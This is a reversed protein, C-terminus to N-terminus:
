SDIKFLFPLIQWFKRLTSIQAAGLYYLRPNTPLASSRCPVPTLDSDLVTRALVPLLHLYELYRTTYYPKATHEAVLTSIDIHRYWQLFIRLHGSAASQIRQKRGEAQVLYRSQDRVAITTKLTWCANCNPDGENKWTWINSNINIYWYPWLSSTSTINHITTRTRTNTM